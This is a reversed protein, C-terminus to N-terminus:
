WLPHLEVAGLWRRPRDTYTGVSMGPVLEANGLLRIFIGAGFPTFIILDDALDQTLVLQEAVGDARLM